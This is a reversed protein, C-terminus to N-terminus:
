FLIIKTETTGLELADMLISLSCLVDDDIKRCQLREPFACDKAGFFLSSRRLNTKFAMGTLQISPDAQLYTDSMKQCNKPDKGNYINRAFASTIKPSKSHTTKYNSTTYATTLTAPCTIM